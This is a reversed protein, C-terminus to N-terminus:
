TIRNYRMDIYIVFQMNIHLVKREFLIDELQSNNNNFKSSLM